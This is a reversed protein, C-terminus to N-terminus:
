WRKVIMKLIMFSGTQFDPGVVNILKFRGTLLGCDEPVQYQNFYPYTFYKSWKGFLATQYGADHLIRPFTVQTSDFVDGIRLVSNNASYRGTLIAARSPASLSVVAFCNNFRIGNAAIRDINPTAILSHGYSSIAGPSHDDSLILIINPGSIDKKTGCSLTLGCSGMVLFTRTIDVSLMKHSLTKFKKM